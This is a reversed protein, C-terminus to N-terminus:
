AFFSAVRMCPLKFWPCFLSVVAACQRNKRGVIINLHFYSGFSIHMLETHVLHTDCILRITGLYTTPLMYCSFFKLFLVVFALIWGKELCFHINRLFTKQSDSSKGRQYALKKTVRRPLDIEEIWCQKQQRLQTWPEGQM